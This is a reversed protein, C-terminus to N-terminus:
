TGVEGLLADYAGLDVPERVLDPVEISTAATALTKVV